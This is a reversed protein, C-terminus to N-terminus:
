SQNALQRLAQKLAEVVGSTGTRVACRASSGATLYAFSRSLKPLGSALRGTIRCLQDLHV